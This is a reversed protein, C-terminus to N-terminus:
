GRGKIGTDQMNGPDIWPTSSIGIDYSLTIPPELGRFVRFEPYYYHSCYNEGNCSDWKRYWSVVFYPQPRQNPCAFVVGHIDPNGAEKPYSTVM